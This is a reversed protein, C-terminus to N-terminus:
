RDLVASRIMEYQTPSLLDALMCMQMLAHVDTRFVEKKM